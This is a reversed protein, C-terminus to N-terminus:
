GGYGDDARECVCRVKIEQLLDVAQQENFMDWVGDCALVVFPDDDQLDFQKMQPKASVFPQFLKDGLAQGFVISQVRSSVRANGM